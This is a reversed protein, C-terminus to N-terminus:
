GGYGDVVRDRQCHEDPLFWIITTQEFDGNTILNIPTAGVPAAVGALVLLGLGIIGSQAFDM